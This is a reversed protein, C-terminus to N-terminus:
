PTPNRSPAPEPTPSTSVLPLIAVRDDFLAVVWGDNTIALQPPSARPAAGPPEPLPWTWTMLGNGDFTAIYDRMASDDLRIAVITAGGAGFASSMASAGPFSHSVQGLQGDTGAIDLLLLRTPRPPNGGHRGGNRPPDTRPRGRGALRVLPIRPPTDNFAGVLVAGATPTKWKIAGDVAGLLTEGELTYTWHAGGYTLDVHDTVDTINAPTAAGTALDVRIARDGRRWLFAGDGTITTREVGSAEDFAAVVKKAGHVFGGREDAVNAPDVVDYCGLAIEGAAVPRPQTACDGALVARVGDAAPPAVRPGAPRSWMVNATTLDIAVFGARSTAVIAIQDIVLPGYSAVPAATPASIPLEAIRWPSASPLDALEPWLPPVATDDVGADHAGRDSSATDRAADEPRADRDRAAQDSSERAEGTEQQESSRKHGCAAMAAM